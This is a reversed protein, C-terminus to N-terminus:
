GSAPVPRGAGATDFPVGPALADFVATFKLDAEEREADPRSGAVVGVGATPPTGRAAARSRM